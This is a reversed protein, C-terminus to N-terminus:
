KVDYKKRLRRFGTICRIITPIYLLLLFTWLVYFVISVPDSFNSYRVMRLWQPIVVCLFIVLIPLMKRRTIREMMDIRSQNDNFIEDDAGENLKCFYSFDNLDQLYEWGYDKFMQLYSDRDEKKQPNFDIRYIMDAPDDKRFSYIGPLTIKELFYGKKAMDNLYQEEEEYEPLVYFHFERKDAM